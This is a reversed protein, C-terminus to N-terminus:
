DQGVRKLQYSWAAHNQRQDFRLEFQLTGVDPAASNNAIWLQM